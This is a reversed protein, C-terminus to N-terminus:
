LHAKGHCERPRPGPSSAASLIDYASLSDREGVRLSGSSTDRSYPARISGRDTAWCAASRAFRGLPAVTRTRPAPATPSSHAATLLTFPARTTMASMWASRTWNATRCPNASAATTTGMFGFRGSAIASFSSNARSTASKTLAAVISPRGTPSTVAVYSHVPTSDHRCVDM